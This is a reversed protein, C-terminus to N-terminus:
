YLDQYYIGDEGCLYNVAVGYAELLNIITKKEVMGRATPIEADM